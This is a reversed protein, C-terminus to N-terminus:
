RGKKLIQAAAEEMTLSQRLSTKKILHYAEEESLGEEDILKKKAQKVVNAKESNAVILGATEALTRGHDMAAKQLVQYARTETINQSSAILGQARRILKQENLRKQAAATEEKSKTLRRSQSYAVEITPKLSKQDIPKVLYGTIGIAKAQEIIAMDSFATLLIVCDALDEKLITDAATLGDFVPMKVDMLVVDPHLRRCLDVATLGDGAEGAVKYGQVKLMAKLDLRVIPEDDVILITLPTSGTMAARDTKETM